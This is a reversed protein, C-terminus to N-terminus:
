LALMLYIRARYIEGFFFYLCVNACFYFDSLSVSLSCSLCLCFTIWLGFELWDHLLFVTDSITNKVKVNDIDDCWM